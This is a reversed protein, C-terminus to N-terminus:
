DQQRILILCCTSLFNIFSVKSFFFAQRFVRFDSFVHAHEKMMFLGVTGFDAFVPRKDFSITIM